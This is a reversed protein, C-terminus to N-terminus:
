VSLDRVEAAVRTPLSAEVLWCVDYVLLLVKCGLGM